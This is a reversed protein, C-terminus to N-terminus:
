PPLRLILGEAPPKVESGLADKSFLAPSLDLGLAAATFEIRTKSRTSENRVDVDKPIWQKGVKKLDVLSLTKLAAGADDLLETRVLAHFQTDLYARVAPVRAAGEPNHFLFEDAPRGLVRGIAVLRADSWFLYPMQLDFPTVEVGEVLPKFLDDQGLRTLVGADYAWAEAHTGNQLLIRHERGAGDWVAIRLVPGQDNRDGWLRGRFSPGEGRRPIEDLVFELYYPASQAPNRFAELAEAASAADSAGV